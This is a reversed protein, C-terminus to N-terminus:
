IHFISPHTAFKRNYLRPGEVVEVNEEMNQFLECEHDIVPRFFGQTWGYIFAHSQDHTCSHELMRTFRDIIYPIEAIFMVNTPYPNPKSLDYYSDYKGPPNEPSPNYCERWGGCLCEPSGFRKYKDIIVDLPDTFLVDWGDTFLVHTYLGHHIHHMYKLFQILADMRMPTEGPYQQFFGIGYLNAEIGYHKASALYLWLQKRAVEESDWCAPATVLLKM